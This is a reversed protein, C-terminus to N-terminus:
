GEERDTDVTRKTGARKMEQDKEYGDENEKREEKGWGKKERKGGGRGRGGM